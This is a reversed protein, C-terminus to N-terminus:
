ALGAGRAILLAGAGVVVAGIGRAVRDAAPALRETTIAAAVAAMTGLDMVGVVLLIAMLNACCGSCHLGLRV